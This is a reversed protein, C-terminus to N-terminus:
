VFKTLRHQTLTQIFNVYILCLLYHKRNFFLKSVTYSNTRLSREELCTVPLLDRFFTERKFIISNGTKLHNRSKPKFYIKLAAFKFFFHDFYQDVKVFLRLRNQNEVTEIVNYFVIKYRDLSHSNVTPNHMTPDTIGILKGQYTNGTDAARLFKKQIVKWLLKSM